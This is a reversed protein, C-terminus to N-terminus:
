RSAVGLPSGPLWISRESGRVAHIGASERGNHRTGSQMVSLHQRLSEVGPLKESSDVTHVLELPDYSTERAVAQLTNRPTATSAAGAAKLFTGDPCAPLGRTAEPGV